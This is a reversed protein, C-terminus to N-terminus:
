NEPVNIFGKEVFVACHHYIRIILVNKISTRASEPGVVLAWGVMASPEPFPLVFLPFPLM